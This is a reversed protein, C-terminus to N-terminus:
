LAELPAPGDAKLTELVVSSRVHAVSGHPLLVDSLLFSLSKLDQVTVKLFYDADGTVAHAERVSPISEVLRRFDRSTSPNHTALTVQILATVALGLASEDVVARYARIIGAEELAARRRSCQSASLHVIEAIQQNTKRADAQLAALIRYDAADLDPKM